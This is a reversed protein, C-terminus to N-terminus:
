PSDDTWLSEAIRDFRSGANAAGVNGSAGSAGAAAGAVVRRGCEESREVDVCIWSRGGVERLILGIFPGDGASDSQVMGVIELRLGAPVDFVVPAGGEVLVFKYTGAALTHEGYSIDTPAPCDSLGLTAVDNNAVTRLVLPVCGSLRNGGFFVHTLHTLQELRSPIRGTLSNSNLQLQTLGTLSGLLGSLEGTLALNALTLRTVRQPTGGVTVGTWGTMATGADWNLATSTGALTGELLLLRECDRVLEPNSTPSPVATGNACVSTFTATVTKDADMTLVCSPATGTCDGGWGAFRHTVANWSPTLTVVSGTDHTTTGGPSVSGEGTVTVTLTHTSTEPTPTPTSTPTGSFRARVTTTLGRFLQFQFPTRKLTYVVSGGLVLDFRSFTCGDRATAAVRVYASQPFTWETGTTPTTIPNSTASMQQATVTGCGAPTVEATLRDTAQAASPPASDHPGIVALALTAVTIALLGLRLVLAGIRM